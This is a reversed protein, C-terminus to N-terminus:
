VPFEFGRPGLKAKLIEAIRLDKWLKSFLLDPGISTSRVRLGRGEESALLVIAKESFRAGSQLLSDLQGSERLRDLRGVTAVVRQRVRGGNWSNEVIQLYTRPGSKKARFFM